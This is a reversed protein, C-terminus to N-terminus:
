DLFLSTKLFLHLEFDINMCLQLKCLIEQNFINQLFQRSEIFAETLSSIAEKRSKM